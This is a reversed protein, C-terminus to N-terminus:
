WSIPLRLVILPPAIHLIRLEYGLHLLPELVHGRRQVAQGSLAFHKPLDPTLDHHTHQRGLLRLRMERSQYLRTVAVTALKRGADDSAKASRMRATAQNHITAPTRRATAANRTAEWWGALLAHGLRIAPKQTVATPITRSVLSLLGSSSSARYDPVAGGLPCRELSRSYARPHRLRFILVNRTELTRKATMARGM